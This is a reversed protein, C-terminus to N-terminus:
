FIYDCTHDYVLLQVFLHFGTRGELFLHLFNLLVIPDEALLGM